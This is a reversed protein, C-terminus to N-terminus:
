DLLPGNPPVNFSGAYYFRTVHIYYKDRGRIKRVKYDPREYENHDLLYPRRDLGDVYDEAVSKSDFEKIAKIM